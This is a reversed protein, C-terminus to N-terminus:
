QRNYLDLKYVRASVNKPKLHKCYLEFKVEKKDIDIIWLIINKCDIDLLITNSSRGIEKLIPSFYPLQIIAQKLHEFM